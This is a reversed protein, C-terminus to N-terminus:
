VYSKNIEEDAFMEKAMRLMNMMDEESVTIYSTQEKIIGDDNYLKVPIKYSIKNDVIIREPVGVIMFKKKEGTNLNLELEEDINM